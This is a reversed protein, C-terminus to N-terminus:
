WNVIDGVRKRAVKMRQEIADLGFSCRLYSCIAFFISYLIYFIARFLYCAIMVIYKGYVM